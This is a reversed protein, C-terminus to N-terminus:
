PLSIVLTNHSAILLLSTFLPLLVLKHSVKNSGNLDQSPGLGYSASSSSSSRSSGSLSSPMKCNGFSPNLSTVAATNDFNCSDDTMGNKLFYDNFAYSATNQIDAADYCPGGQQTPSCNAGGAGCAWDLASQLAADEANNKAVCWLETTVVSNQATSLSALSFILLSLIFPTHMKTPFPPRHLSVSFSAASAKLPRLSSFPFM